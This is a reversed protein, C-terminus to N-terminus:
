WSMCLGCATPVWSGRIWKDDLWIERNRQDESSSQYDKCNNDRQLWCLHLHQMATINSSEREEAVNVLWNTDLRLWATILVSAWADDKDLCLLMPVILSVAFLLFCYLVEGCAKTIDEGQKKSLTLKSRSIVIKRLLYNSHFCRAKSITM